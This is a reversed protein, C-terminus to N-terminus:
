NESKVRRSCYKYYITKCYVGFRVWCTLTEGTIQKSPGSGETTPTYIMETTARHAKQTTLLLVIVVIFPLFSTPNPQRNLLKHPLAISLKLNSLSAM